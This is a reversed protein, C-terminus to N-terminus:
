KKGKVEKIAELTNAEPDRSAAMVSSVGEAGRRALYAGAITAIAMSTDIAKAYGLFTLCTIALISLIFGRSKM